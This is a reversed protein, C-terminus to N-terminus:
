ASCPKTMGALIEDGGAKRVRLALDGGLRAAKESDAACCSLSERLIPRGSVDAVFGCLALWAGQRCSKAPEQRWPPPEPAATQVSAGPCAQQKKLSSEAGSSDTGGAYFPCSPLVSAPASEDFDPSFLALAGIPNQCGGGLASLFAREAEVCLRTPYHELFALLESLDRRSRLFEIALAGQGPAPIFSQAPLETQFPAALGLRKLGAGALIIADFHGENLKRLRTEVNGRLARIQLDPRLGLLQSARRLSSTGVVAAPPLMALSAYKVSLLFDAFCDREPIVGLFLGPPLEVPVDKLSHVAFDAQGSLLVEEIEKVFLGKGGIKALSVDLYVDGKTKIIALEVSLEPYKNRLRGKIHEAQWIALSSGRTAIVVKDM